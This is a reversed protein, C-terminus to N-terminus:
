FMSLQINILKEGIISEGNQVINNIHFNRIKDLLEERSLERLEKEWIVLCSFGYQSYKDIKVQPDQGKHWYDGFMEIVKKQGNINMFDPCMGGVVMEGNGTYRYQKPCAKEILIGLDYEARTPRIHSGALIAKTQKDRIEPNQWQETAKLSYHERLSLQRNRIREIQDSTRPPIRKGMQGQSM